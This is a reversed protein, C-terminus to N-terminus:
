NGATSIHILMNLTTGKGVTSNIELNDTCRKINPLGMGAGFGMERALEPATSFGEKMALDIDAIGPGQDSVVIKIQERDVWVEITGKEAHIAVNMEAEYAAIATRRVVEDTVGIQKLAKKIKTSAEGAASFDLGTISFSLYLAPQATM